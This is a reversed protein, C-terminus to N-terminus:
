ILLHCCGDQGSLAQLMSEGKYSVWLCPRASCVNCAHRNLRVVVCCVTVLVSNTDTNTSILTQMAASVHCGFEIMRMENRIRTLHSLKVSDMLLYQPVYMCLIVHM